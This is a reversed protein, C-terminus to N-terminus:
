HKKRKPLKSMFIMIPISILTCLGLRLGSNFPIPDYVFKVLHKGKPIVVARMVTNAKMIEVEEWDIFAKWGPYFTDSLVLIGSAPTNINLIVKNSSYDKIEVAANSPKSGPIKEFSVPEENLVVIDEPNFDNSTLFDLAEQRDSIVKYDSVFSARPLLESNRYVKVKEDSYALEVRSDKIEESAILYKVNLLNLLNFSENLSSLSPEIRGLSDDVDGLNKMFKYYDNMVLPSYAGVDSVQFSMNYNPLYKSLDDSAGTPIFSYVRYLSTDKKIFEIAAPTKLTKRVPAMNGRFGTGFFSFIYLDLVIVVICAFQFSELSAWRRIYKIIFFSIVIIVISSVNFRNFVSTNAILMQFISDVKNYYVELSHHHFPKGYIKKEVYSRGFNILFGKGLFLIINSIVLTSVAGISVYFITKTYRTNQKEDASISCYRDFGYGALVALSFITFFLFKAPVRLGYFGIAKIILVYLPSYKGFALLLSFLALFIFFWSFRNKRFFVIVLSLLFPLVGIYLLGGSAPDCRPLLLQIMGLPSYSGLMTFDIGIHQRSSFRSLEVTAFLQAASLGFAVFAGILYLFAVRTSRKFGRNKLHYFYLHVVFYLTSFIISYLAFQLYGALIQVSVVIGILIGYLLEEKKFLKETLFLVLPFWVLVKLSMFSYFCGGYASGFLFAIVTVTAAAKSMGTERVYIYLFIGALVFHLLINYTYAIKHPLLFYMILNLPYLAGIQGEALIPFGSHMYPTWLPLSLNALSDALFRSWPIHQASYDGLLFSEKLVIFKWLFLSIVFVFMIVFPNEKFFSITKEKNM